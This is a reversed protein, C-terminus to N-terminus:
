VFAGWASVSGFTCCTRRGFPWYEFAMIFSQENHRNEDKGQLENAHSQGRKLSRGDLPEGGWRWPLKEWQGCPSVKSAMGLWFGAQQSPRASLIGLCGFASACNVAALAPGGGTALATGM